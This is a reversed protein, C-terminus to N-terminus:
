KKRISEIEDVLERYLSKYKDREMRLICMPRQCNSNCPHANMPSYLEDKLYHNEDTLDLYKVLLAKYSSKSNSAQRLEDREREMKRAFEAPVYLDGVIYKNAADTEPTPKDEM